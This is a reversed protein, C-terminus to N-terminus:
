PKSDAPVYDLGDLWLVAMNQGSTQFAYASITPGGPNAELIEADYFGPKGAEEENWEVEALTIGGQENKVSVTLATMVLAAVAGGCLASWLRWRWVPRAPRSPTAMEGSLAAIQERLRHQFFDAQPLPREQPLHEKLLARLRTHRAAEAAGEEGLRAAVEAAEGPPLLGDLWATHQEEFRKM